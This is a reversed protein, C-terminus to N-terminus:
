ASRRDLQQEVAMLEYWDASTKRLWQWVIWPNTIGWPGGAGTIEVLWRKNEYDYPWYLDLGRMGLHNRVKIRPKIKWYVRGRADTYRLDALMVPVPKPKGSM